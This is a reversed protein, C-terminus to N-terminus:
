IGIAHWVKREIRAAIKRDRVAYRIADLIACAKVEGSWSSGNVFAEAMWVGGIQWAEVTITKAPDGHEAGLVRYTITRTTM